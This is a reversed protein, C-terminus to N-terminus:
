INTIYVMGNGMTNIGSPSSTSYTSGRVDILASGLGFVDFPTNGTITSGRANIFGGYRISLGAGANSRITSDSVNVSGGYAVSVGAGLNSSSVGARIDLTGGSDICFGAGGNFRSKCLIGRGNGTNDIQYGAGSNNSIFSAGNRISGNYNVRMGTKCNTVTVEQAFVYGGYRVVIGNQGFNHIAVSLGLGIMGSAGSDAVGVTVGNAFTTIGDGVLLMNDVVIGGNGRCRLGDCQNFRLVTNYFSTLLGVNYLESAATNSSIGTPSGILSENPKPGTTSEGLIKILNGQPHELTLPTSSVYEGDSLKVEVSSENQIMRTSLWEMAKQPTAWPNTSTGTGTTDSGTTSVYFTNNGILVGLNPDNLTGDFRTASIIGSSPNLTIGAGVYVRDLFTSVGTVNLNVVNLQSNLNVDGTFTSVGTVNLNVVNLQSNLNVDGTFTSVGTVNLNNFNSGGETSIGSISASVTTIGSAFTVNINDGFNITSATGLTSNNDKVVIGSNTAVVGTLSSGDIAPLSGTLQSAPIGTLGSASGSFTFATVLGSIKVDGEVTLSSTPITSGIGVKGLTNIGASNKNWVGSTLNSGDGFYSYVENFNSNIKIGGALLSDGDGADPASGTNIGLKAM